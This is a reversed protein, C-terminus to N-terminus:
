VLVCLLNTQPVVCNVLFFFHDFILFVKINRSIIYLLFHLFLVFGPLYTPPIKGLTVLLYSQLVLASPLPIFPSM